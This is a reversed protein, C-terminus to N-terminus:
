SDLWKSQMYKHKRWPALHIKKEKICAKAASCLIKILTKLRDVRGVFEFAVFNTSKIARGSEGDRVGDKAGYGSPSKGGSTTEASSTLSKAFM